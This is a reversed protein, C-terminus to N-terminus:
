YNLEYESIEVGDPVSAIVKDTIKEIKGGPAYTAGSIFDILRQGEEQTLNEEVSEVYKYNKDCAVFILAICILLFKKM